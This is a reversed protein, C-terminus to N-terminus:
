FQDHVFRGCNQNFTAHFISILNGYRRGEENSDMLGNSKYKNCFECKATRVPTSLTNSGSALGIARNATHHLIDHMPQGTATGVAM